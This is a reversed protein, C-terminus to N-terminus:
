KRKDVVSKLKDSAKTRIFDTEEVCKVVLEILPEDVTVEKLDKYHKVLANYVKNESINQGKDLKVTIRECGSVYDIQLQLLGSYGLYKSLCNTFERYNLFNTGAKFIDGYRGMLEFRPSTRGCPCPEDIWRGLDGIEYRTIKQGKRFLPTFLLRGVEGKDVPKNQDLKFIELIQANTFLHHVGDKCYPCAFGMPGIDNSGYVMSKILKVGFKDKFHAAQQPNFMEGGYFIKEIGRYSALKNEQKQFLRIIYSPMGCLTNIKHETIIEAVEQFDDVAAMPFQTAGLKELVSFISLFGGYLHGCYFLNMCRDNKIDFGAAFIGEAATQMQLHYDEWTYGSLKAKGSSGGSKVFLQSNKLHSNEYFYEKGTIPTNDPLKQQNFPMLEDISTIQPLKNGMGQINVRKCYRTLARVGDHPEGPYSLFVKGPEVIRTAGAKFLKMSLMASNKSSCGLSVTQLWRRYPFLVKVIDKQPLPKVWITRFLPSAKLESHNELLIRWNLAKDEIVAADGFPQQLKNMLTTATIEAQENIEIKAVPYLPSVKEMALSLLYAITKIKEFDDTDIYLIQPSACAQQEMRCIDHALEELLSSNEAAEVTFYAFSIKHGWEIIRLGPPVSNRISSIAEDGGWVSVADCINFLKNLIEKESSPIHFGFLFPKIEPLISGLMELLYISFMGNRYTDKLINVNGCLLSEIVSLFGTSPSNGPAIHLVTGLPMWGEFIDSGFNIRKIRLPRETGLERKVKEELYSKLLIKATEEITAKVENDPMGLQKLSNTVRKPCNNLLQTGLMDAANIVKQIDINLDLGRAIYEPLKDIISNINDNTCLEGNLLIPLTM